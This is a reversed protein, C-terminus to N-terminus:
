GIVADFEDPADAVVKTMWCRVDEALWFKANASHPYPRSSPFGGEKIMRYIETKSLGVAEIVKPLRWFEIEADRHVDKQM